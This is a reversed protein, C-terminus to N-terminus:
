PDYLAVPLSFTDLRSRFEVTDIQAVPFPEVVIFLGPFFNTDLVDFPCNTPGSM